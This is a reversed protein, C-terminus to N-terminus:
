GGDPFATDSRTRSAWRLSVRLRLLDDASASDPLLVLTTRRTGVTRYRLVILWLTVLTEGQVQMDRWAGQEDQCQLMGDSDVRLREAGRKRRWRAMSAGVVGLGLLGQLAVPIAAYAIATLALVSMGLYLMGLLRSPRTEIEHMLTYVKM